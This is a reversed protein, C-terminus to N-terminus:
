YWILRSKCAVLALSCENLLLKLIYCGTFTGQGCEARGKGEEGPRPQSSFSIIRFWYSCFGDKKEPLFPQKFLMKCPFRGISSYQQKAPLGRQTSASTPCRASCSCVADSPASSPSRLTRATQSRGAVTVTVAVGPVTAM